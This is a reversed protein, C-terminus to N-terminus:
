VNELGDQETAAFEEEIARIERQIDPDAAMAALESQFRIAEKRRRDAALRDLLMRQDDASLQNFQSEFAHLQAASM